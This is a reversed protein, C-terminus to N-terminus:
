DADIVPGSGSIRTTTGTVTDRVFIDASDNTDGAVLNSALSVFAVFRGDASLSPAWSAPEGPTTGAAPALPGWLLGALVVGAVVLRLWRGIASEGSWQVLTRGGM